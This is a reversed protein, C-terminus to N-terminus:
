MQLVRQHSVNRVEEQEADKGDGELIDVVATQQQTSGNTIIAAV